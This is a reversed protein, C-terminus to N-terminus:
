YFLRGSSTKIISKQREKGNKEKIQIAKTYTYILYSRSAINDLSPFSM